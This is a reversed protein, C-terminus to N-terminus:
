HYYGLSSGTGTVPERPYAGISAPPPSGRSGRSQQYDIMNELADIQDPVVADFQAGGHGMGPIYYVGVLDAAAKEGIKSAVLLRYAESEGPSVIPDAAGHVLILPRMLYGFDDERRLDRQVYVPSWVPDWLVIDEDSLLVDGPNFTEDWRPISDRLYGLLASYNAKWQAESGPWRGVNYAFGNDLSTPNNYIKQLANLQKTTLPPTLAQHFPDWNANATRAAIIDDIRPSIIQYYYATSSVGGWQTFQSNYGYGSIGGDFLKPYAEVMWRTHHGGNSGGVLLTRTSAKNYQTQALAKLYVTLVVLSSRSDYYDSQPNDKITTRSWGEDCSAFAYGKAIAADQFAASANENGSFGRTFIMIKGNWVDPLRAQFKIHSYILGHIHRHAAPTTLKEDVDWTAVVPVNQAKISLASLGLLLGGFFRLCSRRNM